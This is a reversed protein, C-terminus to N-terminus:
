EVAAISTHLKQQWGAVAVVHRVATDMASWASESVRGILLCGITRGGPWRIRTVKCGIERAAVRVQRSAQDEEPPKLSAKRGDITKSTVAKVPLWILVSQSPRCQLVFKSLETWRPYSPEKKTRLGPPDIFIFDSNRIAKSQPHAPRCYIGHGQEWYTEILNAVVTPSIDWLSLSPHKGHLHCADTAVLSSGPYTGSLLNPRGALYWSHWLATHRNLALEDGKQALCRIGSRWGNGHIIPSYAYGAFTDAYRFESSEHVPLISDLLSLLAVHKVVDGENGAKSHHDYSM